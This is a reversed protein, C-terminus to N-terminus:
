RKVIVERLHDRTLFFKVSGFREFMKELARNNFYQERNRLGRPALLITKSDVIRYSYSPVTRVKDEAHFYTLLLAGPYMLHYLREIAAELLPPPLYQLADWLLVGGFGKESYNLTQELFEGIKRSEPADPNPWVSDLVHLVNESSIRHGLNTIYNINAQNAGGLDLVATSHEEKLTALFQELGRSQRTTEEVPFGVPWSPQASGSHQGNQRM